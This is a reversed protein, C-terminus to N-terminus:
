AHVFTRGPLLAEAAFGRHIDQGRRDRHLEADREGLPNQEPLSIVKIAADDPLGTEGPVRRRALPVVSGAQQRFVTASQTAVPRAAPDQWREIRGAATTPKQYAIDAPLPFIPHRPSLSKGHSKATRNTPPRPSKHRLRCLARTSRSRAIHRSHFHLAAPRERRAKNRRGRKPREFTMAPRHTVGTTEFVVLERAAIAKASKRRRQRGNEALHAEGALRRRHCPWRASPCRHWDPLRGLPRSCYPPTSAPQPDLRPCDQEAQPGPRAPNTSRRSKRHNLMICPSGPSPLICRQPWCTPGSRITAKTATSPRRTGM